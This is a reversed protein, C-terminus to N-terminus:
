NGKLIGSCPSYRALVNGEFLRRATRFVAVKSVYVDGDGKLRLVTETRILGAPHRIKVPLPAVIGHGGIEMGHKPRRDDAGRGALEWVVTGHISM